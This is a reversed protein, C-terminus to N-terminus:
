IYIDMDNGYRYRYRDVEMLCVNSAAEKGFRWSEAPTKAAREGTVKLRQWVTALGSTCETVL